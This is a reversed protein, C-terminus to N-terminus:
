SFLICAARYDAVNEERDPSTRVVAPLRTAEDLWSALSPRRLIARTIAGEPHWWQFRLWIPAFHFALLSPAPPTRMVREFVDLCEELRAANGKGDDRLLRSVLVVDFLAMAHRHMTRASLERPFADAFGHAEALHELMVRSEGIVVDGDVLLPIRGTPSWQEIGEPLQGIASERLDREVNLHDLLALARHAFPCGRDALLLPKSM